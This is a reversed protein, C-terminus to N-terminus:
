VGGCYVGGCLFLEFWGGLVSLGLRWFWCLFLLIVLEVFLGCELLGGVLLVLRVFGVRFCVLGGLDM